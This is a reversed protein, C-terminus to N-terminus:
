NTKTNHENKRRIFLRKYKKEGGVLPQSVGSKEDWLGMSFGRGESETAGLIEFQEPNYKDLFTIPVGMVGNCRTSSSSAPTPREATSQLDTDTDRTTRSMDTLDSSKLNNPTISISSPSPCAWSATVDEAQHRNSRLDNEAEREREREVNVIQSCPIVVTAEKDKILGHHKERVGENRIDNADVIEFQDSNYKDLYTIPVGMNEFYDCPIDSTKDVNIADYNDYRPYEDENGYYRKYLVLEEHRRAYDLNTFWRVGKVRIFKRGCDDIGCGAANLPYTDPVYFQRDGSHISAGMWLINDKILPFIEKYTVANVNGIILFDKKYEILQAVYERFLSFPPNTVVIDAQKLYKICEASRFDGNEKLRKVGRKQSRLLAYIDDDSVGRGNAMPVESIDMVYGHKSIVPENDEDFISLQSGAVPSTAFSTCILRKLGLYNFNKLFFKCFNSEFPDDCNCFVTKGKFHPEYHNIEAQIDEYRTYFEDKKAEKAKTLTKNGAM